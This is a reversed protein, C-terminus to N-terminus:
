NRATQVQWTRSEKGAYNAWTFPKSMYLAGLDIKQFSLNLKSVWVPMIKMECTRMYVSWPGHGSAPFFGQRDSVRTLTQEHLPGRFPINPLTIELLLKWLVLSEDVPLRVSFNMADLM